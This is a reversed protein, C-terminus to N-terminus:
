GGGLEVDTLLNKIAILNLGINAGLEIVSHIGITKNLIKSFLSINSSILEMEENRSIYENGFKGEWFLEQESRKRM